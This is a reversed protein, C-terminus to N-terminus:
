TQHKSRWLQMVITLKFKQLLRVFTRASVVFTKQLCGWIMNSELNTKSFGRQDSIVMMDSCRLIVLKAIHTVEIQCSTSTQSLNLFFMQFLEMGLQM